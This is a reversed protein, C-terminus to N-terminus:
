DSMAETNYLAGREVGPAAKAGGWTLTHNPTTRIMEDVLDPANASFSSQSRRPCRKWARRM